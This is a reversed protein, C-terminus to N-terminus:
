AIAVEFTLIHSVERLYVLESRTTRQWGATAGMKLFLACEREREREREVHGLKILSKRYDLKSHQEPKPFSSQVFAIIDQSRHLHAKFSISAGKSVKPSGRVHVQHSLFMQWGSYIHGTL